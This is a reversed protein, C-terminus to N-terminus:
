VRAHHVCPAWRASGDEFLERKWLPVRHKVGEILFRSAAYAEDRHPTGVAVVVSTEGAAVLGLSHRVFAFALPWRERAAALLAAFEREAMTEYAEYALARVRRGDVVDARAVGYFANVAGCPRLATLAGVERVELEGLPRPVLFRGV